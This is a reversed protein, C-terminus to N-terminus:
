PKYLVGIKELEGEEFLLSPSLLAAPTQVAMALGKRGHKRTQLLVHYLEHALVRGGARGLRAEQGVEPQDATRLFALLRDCDIESYPLIAGDALATTALEVPEGTESETRGPPVACNGTFHVIFARAYTRSEGASDGRAIWRLSFGALITGLEQKMTKVFLASPASDFRVFLGFEPAEQGLCLCAASLVVLVTRSLM